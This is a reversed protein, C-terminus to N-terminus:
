SQEEGKSYIQEEGEGGRPCVPPCPPPRLTRLSEPILDYLWYGIEQVYDELTEVRANLEELTDAM